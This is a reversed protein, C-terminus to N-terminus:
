TEGKIRGSADRGRLQYPHCFGDRLGLIEELHGAV